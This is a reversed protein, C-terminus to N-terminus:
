YPVNFRMKRYLKLAEYLVPNTYAWGCTYSIVSFHKRYKNVLKKEIDYFSKDQNGGSLYIINADFVKVSIGKLHCGMSLDAAYLHWGSCTIDDFRVKEFVNRHGAILCEDLSFVDEISEKELTKYNWGEQIVAMSSIIRNKGGHGTNKVGAAGFLTHTEGKCLEIIREFIGDLFVIDQHCFVYIDADCLHEVAHNYAAAASTFGQNDINNICVTQIAINGKVNNMSELMQNLLVANNYVTVVAIDYM